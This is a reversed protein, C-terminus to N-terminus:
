RPSSSKVGPAPPEGIDFREVTEGAFVAPLDDLGVADFWEFLSPSRLLKLLPEATRVGIVVM